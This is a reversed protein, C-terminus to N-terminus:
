KKDILKKIADPSEKLAVAGVIVGLGIGLGKLITLAYNKNEIAESKAKEKVDNIDMRSEEVYTKIEENLKEVKIMLEKKEEETTAKDMAMIYFDIEKRAYEIYEKSLDKNTDLIKKLTEFYEKTNKANTDLASKGMSVAEKYAKVKESLNPDKKEPLVKM